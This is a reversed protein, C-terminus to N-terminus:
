HKKTFDTEYIYGAIDEITDQKFSLNPMLEYKAIADQMISTEENPNKVWKVMERIFEKRSSFAAIYRQRVEMM